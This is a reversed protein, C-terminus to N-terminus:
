LARRGCLGLRRAACLTPRPPRPSLGGTGRRRRPRPGMPRPRPVGGARLSTVPQLTLHGARTGGATRGGGRQKRAKLWRTLWEAARNADRNSALWFEEARRGLVRAAQGETAGTGGAEALAAQFVLRALPGAACRCCVALEGDGFHRAAAAPRRRCCDCPRPEEAPEDYGDSADGFDPTPTRPVANSGPPSIATSVTEFVGRPGM